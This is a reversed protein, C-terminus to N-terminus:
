KAFKYNQIFKNLPKFLWYITIFNSAVFILEFPIDAIIYEVLAQSDLIFLNVLVFGWCYIFGFVGGIIALSLENEVKRFVTKLMIMLLMWSFLMAIVNEVRFPGIVLNDILVYCVLLVVMEKFSYNKSYLVILLTTIQVNPISFFLIEQVILGCISLAILTMRRVNM